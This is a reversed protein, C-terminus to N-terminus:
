GDYQGQAMKDKNSLQKEYLYVPDSDIKDLCTFGLFFSSLFSLDIPWIYRIFEWNM